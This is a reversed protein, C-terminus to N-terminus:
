GMGREQTILLPFTAFYHLLLVPCELCLKGHMLLSILKDLLAIGYIRVDSCKVSFNLPLFSLVISNGVHNPWVYLLLNIIEKHM